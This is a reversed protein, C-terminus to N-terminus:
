KEPTPRPIETAGPTEGGQAAEWEIEQRLAETDLRVRGGLGSRDAPTPRLPERPAEPRRHVRKKMPFIFCVRMEKTDFLYRRFKVSSRFRSIEAAISRSCM